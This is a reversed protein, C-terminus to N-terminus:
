EGAVGWVRVAGERSGSALRANDPGWGVGTVASVHGLLERLAAGNAADWVTVIGNNGDTSGSVLLEGDPSWTVALLRNGEEMVLTVRASIPDWIRIFGDNTVTALQGGDPSWALGTVADSHGTLVNSSDGAPINWIRVSFDASASALQGVDPSWALSTVADRHGALTQSTDSETDFVAIDGDEGAMALYREDPSWDMDTIGPILTPGQFTVTWGDINEWIEWSGNQSGIALAQDRQRLALGTVPGGGQYTLVAMEGGTDADWIRVTGDQSAGAIWTGDSAWVLHTVWDLFGRATLLPTEDPLAQLTIQGNTSSSALVPEAATFGLEAVWNGGTGTSLVQNGSAADWVRVTGDEGISALQM